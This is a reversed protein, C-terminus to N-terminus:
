MDPELIYWSLWVIQIFINSRESSKAIPLSYFHLEDGLNLRERMDEHYWDPPCLRNPNNRPHYFLVGCTRLSFLIINSVMTKWILFGTLLVQLLLAVM